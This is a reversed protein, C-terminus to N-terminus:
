GTRRDREPVRQLGATLDIRVAEADKRVGLKWRLADRLDDAEDETISWRSALDRVSEGDMLGQLADREAISLGEIMASAHKRENM